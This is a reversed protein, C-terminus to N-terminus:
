RKDSSGVAGTKRVSHRTLQDYADHEVYCYQTDVSTVVLQFPLKQNPQITFVEDSLNIVPIFIEGTYGCDIVGARHILPTKIVSGRQLILGVRDSPLAIKLGTSIKTLWKDEAGKWYTLLTEKFVGFPVVPNINIEHDGTYFLDLGASEGYAPKYNEPTINNYRLAERLRETATFSVM